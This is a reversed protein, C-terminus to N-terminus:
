KQGSNINEKPWIKNRRAIEVIRSYKVTRQIENRENVRLTARKGVRKGTGIFIPSRKHPLLFPGATSTPSSSHTTIFHSLLSSLVCSNHISPAPKKLSFLLLQQTPISLAWRRQLNLQFYILSLLPFIHRHIVVPSDGERRGVINVFPRFEIMM